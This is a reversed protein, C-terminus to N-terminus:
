KRPIYAAQMEIGVENQLNVSVCHMTSSREKISPEPVPYVQYRESNNLDRSATNEKRMVDMPYLQYSDGASSNLCTRSSKANPITGHSGSHLHTTNQHHPRANLLAIVMLSYIQVGPLLVIM